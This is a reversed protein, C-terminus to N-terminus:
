ESCASDEDQKKDKRNNYYETDVGISKLLSVIEKNPCEEQALSDLAEWTLYRVTMTKWALMTLQSDNEPAPKTKELVLGITRIAPKMYDDYLAFVGKYATEFQKLAIDMREMAGEYTISEIEFKDSM